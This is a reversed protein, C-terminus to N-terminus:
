LLLVFLAVAEVAASRVEEVLVVKVGLAQFILCGLKGKSGGALHEHIVEGAEALANRCYSDAAPGELWRPVGRVAKDWHILCDIRDMWRPVSSCEDVHEEASAVVIQAAVTWCSVSHSRHPSQVLIGLPGGLSAALVM